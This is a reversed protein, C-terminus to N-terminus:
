KTLEKLEDIRNKITNFGGQWFSQKTIDIGISKLLKVPDQSGGVALIKEIKPIFSKGEKKYKAYLSMSLLDGFSYAYTYFPVRFMHPIYSWEYRFEEPLILSNGFQEKLTKFYIDSVQEHTLGDRIKSYVEQEFKVFFTQRIISAYADGIKDSLMSIREAKNAQELLRDFLINEGLTSATEALTLGPHAVSPYNGETYLDHIGHGLEHAMTEVDRYTNDHNLMIYPTINPSALLAFAGTRKNKRPHSDVCGKDFIEKAKEYFPPHFEQYTDLVIKKAEDFSYKKNVKKVPAYIDYRRLKKMGILKAKLKFYEHFINANKVSTDIVTQVVEDPVGNSINRVQIPSKYKRLESTNIWNTSVATYISHFKEINNTYPEFLAKYALERDSEKSSYFYKKLLEVSDFNQNRFKYTFDNTILGYLEVITSIGTSNKRVILREEKESLSHKALKRSKNLSFELNPISKFLRKANKDDLIKLGPVDLGDFWRGLFLLEDTAKIGLKNMKAQWVKVKKEKTNESKKLSVFSGLINSKEGLEESIEIIEKFTKESMSPRLKKKYDRLKNILRDVHNLGNEFNEEKILHDLNWRLM